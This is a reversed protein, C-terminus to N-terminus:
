SVDSARRSQQDIREPKLVLAHGNLNHLTFHSARLENVATTVGECGWFGYDDFIVVGGTVLRPWVWMFVDKASQYTDVDIHCLKIAAGDMRAGTADPFVGKLITFQTVDMQALLRRVIEESTDAHEGGVYSTDVPTAKTVGEFTDALWLHSADASAVALVAATGGRWVGVELVNGRVGRLQRAVSWLEYCRYVDVLTHASVRNYVALFERDDRWPAYSAVPVVQEHSIGSRLSTLKVQRLAALLTRRFTHLSERYEDRMITDDELRQAARRDVALRTPCCAGMNFNPAKMRSELIDIRPVEAHGIDILESTMPGGIVDAEPHRRAAERYKTLWDRKIIFDDDTWNLLDREGRAPRV